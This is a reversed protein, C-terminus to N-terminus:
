NSIANSCRTTLYNISLYSPLIFNHSGESSSSHMDKEVTDLKYNIQGKAFKRNHAIKM